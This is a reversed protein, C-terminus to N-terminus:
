DCLSLVLPKDQEKNELVNHIQDATDSKKRKGTHRSIYKM